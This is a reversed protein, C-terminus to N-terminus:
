DCGLDTRAAPDAVPFCQGSPLSTPVYRQMSPDYLAEEVFATLQLIEVESLALPVFAGSLQSEPVGPNQPIAENKYRIVSEVSSFSGGHGLFSLGKLNYLTPIKFAYDDEPNGTFGGRGKRTAEDVEGFVLGPQFDDMGLAHFGMGNLGPGNHCEYCRAKGFFLLAGQKQVEGMADSDGRLWQQFPAQNSLVTREFAAIALGANLDTYREAEPIDPFAQDFLAQYQPYEQLWQSDLHLRHVGLGAIAQTEVGSFGLTNKEKPTGETWQVETGANIGLAGFQGNWLMVEQYATNLVTPSRIPQVDLMEPTYNESIGRAEGQHGFGSGGEGIGQLMGSQFQAAAHHCSACSYTQYGEPSVPATGLATEHFLLQGLAVKERTIPNGPDAPIESYADSPPLRLASLSGYLGEIQQTLELDPDGELLLLTDTDVSCSICIPIM